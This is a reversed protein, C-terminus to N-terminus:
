LEEWGGHRDTWAANLDDRKREAYEVAEDRTPAWGYLEEERLMALQEIGKLIRWEWGDGEVRVQARYPPEARLPDTITEFSDSM